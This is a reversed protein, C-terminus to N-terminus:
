LPYFFFSLVFYLHFYQPCKEELLDVSQKGVTLVQVNLILTIAEWPVDPLEKSFHSTQDLNFTISGPTM